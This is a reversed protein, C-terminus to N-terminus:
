ISNTIALVLYLKRAVEILLQTKRNSDFFTMGLELSLPRFIPQLDSM